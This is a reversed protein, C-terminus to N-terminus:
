VLVKLKNISLKEELHAKFIFSPEKEVGNMLFERALASFPKKMEKSFMLGLAYSILSLQAMIELSDELIELLDFSGHTWM